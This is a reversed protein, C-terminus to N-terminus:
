QHLVFFAGLKIKFDNLENKIDEKECYYSKIVDKSQIINRVVNHAKMIHLLDKLSAELLIDTKQM